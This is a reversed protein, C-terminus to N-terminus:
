NNGCYLFCDLVQLSKGLGMCHALLAGSGKDGNKFKEVSEFLCDYMFKIGEVQHPKLNSVLSEHVEVVAVGTKKDIELIVRGTTNHKQRAQEEIYTAQTRELLRRRREEELQRAKRTEETLEEEALIRRINKRGKVKSPFKEDESSENSDSMLVKRGKRKRKGKTNKATRKKSSEKRVEENEDAESESDCVSKRRKRRPRKKARAIFDSDSNSSKGTKEPEDVKRRISVRKFIVSEDSDNEDSTRKERDDFNRSESKKWFFNRRISRKALGMCYSDSENSDEGNSLQTDEEADNENQDLESNIEDLADNEHKDHDNLKSDGYANITGNDSNLDSKLSESLTKHRKKTTKGKKAHVNSEGGHVDDDYDDDDDSDLDASSEDDQCEYEISTTCNNHIETRQLLVKVKKLHYKLKYAAQLEKTCLNTNVESFTKVPMGTAEPASWGDNICRADYKKRESSSSFSDPKESIKIDSSLTELIPLDICPDVDVKVVENPMVGEDELTHSINKLREKRELQSPGGLHTKKSEFAYGKMKLRKLIKLIDRCEETYDDIQSSDCVFCKWKEEEADLLIKLFEPGMNRKVCKQCYVKECFDCCILDGGDGCWRCFEEM